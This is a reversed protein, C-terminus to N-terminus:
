WVGVIRRRRARNMPCVSLLVSLGCCQNISWVTYLTPPIIFTPITSLTIAATLLNMLGATVDQGYAIIWSCVTICGCPREIATDPLQMRGSYRWRPWTMEAIISLRPRFRATPKDHQRTRHCCVRPRTLKSVVDDGALRWRRDSSNGPLRTYMMRVPNLGLLNSRNVTLYTYTQFDVIRLWYLLFVINSWSEFIVFYM